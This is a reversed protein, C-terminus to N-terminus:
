KKWWIVSKPLLLATLLNDGTVMVTRLGANHLENIIPTTEPKIANQMILFGYFNLDSECSDRSLRCAELWTLSADLSKGALAIVRYGNSTYSKLLQEFNEPVSEAKCLELIKEPAGKTYVDFNNSDLSKCLVSMRLFASSFTFQKVIAIELDQQKVIPTMQEFKSTESTLHEDIFQWQTSEFMKIDLPDGTLQGNYISLSHCSALGRLFHSDGLDSLNELPQKFHRIENLSDMEVVSYVDLGDETLTGTKDFCILKLKGGIPIRPPSICFISKKKLRSQAYVTGVTMAAPLAPPVVITVIDLARIILEEIAVGSQYLVTVGYAMGCIAVLFLFGIFRLSDEYFKFDMPKPFLISKVLDGKSTSFGTRVVLALVGSSTASSKDYNRTQVV